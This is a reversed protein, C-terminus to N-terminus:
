SCTSLKKRIVNNQSSNKHSYITMDHEMSIQWITMAKLLAFEEFTVHLESFPVAMHLWQRLKTPM